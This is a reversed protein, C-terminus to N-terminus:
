YFVVVCRHHLAVADCFYKKRVFVGSMIIFRDNCKGTYKYRAHTLYMYLNLHICNIDLASNVFQQKTPNLTPGAYVCGEPYLYRRATMIYLHWESTYPNGNDLNSQAM